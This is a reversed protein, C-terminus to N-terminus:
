LLSTARHILERVQQQNCQVTGLNILVVAVNTHTSPVSEKLLQLAKKFCDEAAQHHNQESHVVGMGNLTNAASYLRKPRAKMHLDFAENYYNAARSFDGKLCYARGFNLYIGAREEDSPNSSHIISDLYKEGKTYEGMDLLLQSLMLVVSGQATKQKQYDMYEKALSAGEDTAQMTIQWLRNSENYAVSKIQFTAGLFIFHFINIYLKM